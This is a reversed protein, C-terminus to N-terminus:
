DGPLVTLDFRVRQDTGLTGTFVLRSAPVKEGFGPSYWGRLPAELGRQVAGTVRGNAQIALLVREGDHIQWVDGTAAIELDPHVLFGIEVPQALGAGSLSDTITVHRPGVRAFQRHHRLNFEKVYGDHEAEVVWAAADEDIAQQTASAREAWNFPGAIRSSDTGAVTLTNHASTGRFHDRWTGGSHYLYTGADVLVPRDGVHLWVALADAHGHAAISLYGLPGHDFVWLTAAADAGDRVVTYGGDSFCRVGKPGAGGADPLGTLAHRLHPTVVAPALDPRNLGAALCGLVASGYAEPVFSSYLVRGEDDDGIRPSNGGEDTIWRLHEAARTMRELVPAAFPDGLRRAVEACLLLWELTFAGYTPSQEVNVGDEHLQHLAETTLVHRGYKAYRQADPLTPVLRGLLFLAAAEAILHNNASSFRSPYRMLWYGHAALSTTLKRRLDETFAASDGILSAVVLLSVVRQALEIGSAWNIGDFTPNHEIWSAIEDACYQELEADSTLAALGAVPQLYQLRNIEWVYKVDGYDTTHRYPVDFCYLHSPWHRGTVPDLHWKEPGPVGDWTIGLFRFNGARATDTAARWQAILSDQCQLALLGERLGPLTPLTAVDVAARAFDPTRLRAVRRRAQEGVRHTVEPLSMSQLRRKYWRLREVTHGM